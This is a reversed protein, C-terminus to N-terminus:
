RSSTNVIVVVRYTPPRNKGALRNLVGKSVARARVRRSALLGELPRCALRLVGGSILRHEADILREHTAISENGLVRVVGFQAATEALEALEPFGNEVHEELWRPVMRGGERFRAALRRDAALAESGAPCAIVALTRAVRCIEGIATPRENAPLHELMDISVVVDFARDTFPLGRVDGLIQHSSPAGRRPRAGYDDFSADLAIARWSPPLLSGIGRSGSGVDLLWGGAADIESLLGLVPEFRVLHNLQRPGLLRRGLETLLYTPSRQRM